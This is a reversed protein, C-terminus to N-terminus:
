KISHIKCSNNWMIQNNIFHDRPNEIISVDSWVVLIDKMFSHNIEMFQEASTLNCICFLDNGSKMMVIELQRKKRRRYEVIEDGM